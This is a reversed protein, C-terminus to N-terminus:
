IAVVQVYFRTDDSQYKEDSELQEQIWAVGSMYTKIDDTGPNNLGTEGNRHGSFWKEYGYQAEGEHRAKIDKALDTNLIVGNDVQDVTQGLFDAASHRLIFWNQKFVGFNTGDGTKGDGYKYDTNMNDTELMAIAMDRTNGGAKLIEQKRAGLGPVIYNGHQDGARAVNMNLDAAPSSVVASVLALSTFLSLLQM